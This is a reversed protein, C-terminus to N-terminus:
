GNVIFELNFLNEVTLSAAADGLEDYKVTPIAVDIDYLDKIKKNLEVLKTPDLKIGAGEHVINHNEDKVAADNIYQQKLEDYKSVEESIKKVTDRLAFATKVPINSLRILVKLSDNFSANGLKGLKM